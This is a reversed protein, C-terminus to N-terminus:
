PNTDSYELQPDGIPRFRLTEAELVRYFAVCREIGLDDEYTVRGYFFYVMGENDSLVRIGFAGISSIYGEPYKVEEQAHSGRAPGGADVCTRGMADDRGKEFHVQHRPANVDARRIQFQSKVIKAVTNGLNVFLCKAEISEGAIPNALYAERLAIRPRNSAMFEARSLKIQQLLLWAQVGGTVFLLLTAVGLAVTAVVLSKTFNAIRESQVDPPANVNVEIPAAKTGRSDAQAATVPRDAVRSGRVVDPLAASSVCLAFTALAVGIRLRAFNISAM